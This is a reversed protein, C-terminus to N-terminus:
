ILLVDGVQLDLLQQAPVDFASAMLPLSVPFNALPSAAMGVVVFDMLSLVALPDPHGSIGVAFDVDQGTDFSKASYIHEFQPCSVIKRVTLSPPLFSALQARVLFDLWDSSLEETTVHQPALVLNLLGSSLGITFGGEMELGIADVKAQSRVFRYNTGGIAYVRRALHAIERNHRAVQECTLQELDSLQM